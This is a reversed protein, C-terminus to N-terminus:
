LAGAFFFPSDEISFDSVVLTLYWFCTKYGGVMIISFEITSSGAGLVGV